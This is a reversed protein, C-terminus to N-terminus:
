TRRWARGPVPRPVCDNTDFCLTLCVATLQPSEGRIRAIAGARPRGPRRRPHPMASPLPSLAPIHTCQWGRM